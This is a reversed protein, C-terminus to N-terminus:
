RIFASYILFINSVLTELAKAPRLSISMLRGKAEWTRPYFCTRGHRAIYSPKKRKGKEQIYKNKFNICISTKGAHM